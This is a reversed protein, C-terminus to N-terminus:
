ARRNRLANVQDKLSRKCDQCMVGEYITEGCIECQHVIKRFGLRELRGTKLFYLIKEKECNCNIAIQEINAGPNARLFDKIRTFLREEEAFCSQCLDRSKKVMIVGCNRCTILNTGICEDRM